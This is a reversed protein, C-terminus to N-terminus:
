KCSYKSSTRSLPPLPIHPAREHLHLRPPNTTALFRLAGHMDQPSRLGVGSDCVSVFGCGGHRGCELIIPPLDDLSDAGARRVHAGLANKLLEFTAHHLYPMLLPEDAGSSSAVVERVEIEPADGYKERCFARADEAWGELAPMLDDSAGILRSPESGHPGCLEEHRWALVRVSVLHSFAVRLLTQVPADLRKASPLQTLADVARDAGEEFAEIMEDVPRGDTAKDLAAELRAAGADAGRPRAATAIQLASRYAENRATITRALEGPADLARLARLSLLM